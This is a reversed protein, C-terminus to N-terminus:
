VWETGSWTYFSQHETDYVLLHHTVSSTALTVGLTTRQATTLGILNIGAATSKGAVEAWSETQTLNPPYLKDVKRELLVLRALVDAINM